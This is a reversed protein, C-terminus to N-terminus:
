GQANNLSFIVFGFCATILLLIIGGFILLGIGTMKKDNVFFYIIAIVHLIPAIFALQFLGIFTLGSPIIYILFGIGIGGWINGEDRKSNNDENKM